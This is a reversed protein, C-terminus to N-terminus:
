VLFFDNPPLDTPPFDAEPVFQGDWRQSLPDSAGADTDPVFQGDWRQSLAESLGKLDM